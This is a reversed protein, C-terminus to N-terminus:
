HRVGNEPGSQPIALTSEFEGFADAAHEYAERVRAHKWEALRRLMTAVGSMLGYLLMM